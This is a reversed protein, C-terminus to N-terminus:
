YNVYVFGIFPEPFDPDNLVLVYYYTGVPVVENKQLIGLNPIADWLGEDNGGEYILNGERSYISLVFDPFVDVIYEIKFVDNLGDGNPSIGQPIVPPCREVLLQFSATTFCIENELRIYVSQPNSTNEFEGPNDIPNTNLLADEPTYFFQINGSSNSSIIDLFDEDLLNFVASELGTDCETLNPLPPIPPLNGFQVDLEFENNFENLEEVSGVGLGNDDAIALLTFEEPISEPLIIELSGSESGGIPINNLTQALAILQFDAYFAILTGSPLLATGESNYITYELTLDRQRCAYIENDITVTADPLPCLVSEVEFNTIIFCDANFVRIWITQPNETNLFNGPDEIANLEQLADEETLYYNISNSPDIQNTADTLDFYEIGFVDCVELNNVLGEVNPIVQIHVQLDAENNNENLENVASINDVYARLQFDAAVSEPVTVTISGSEFGDIPLITTTQASGLLTNDAYFGISVGAELSATSNINYVTYELYLERDGCETSGIFDDITISADPLETNLVTIVNNIIVLDQGSTLQVLASEDGAQINNEITYFDLDMNYFESSGTFSNTGNFANEEPNLPPNSIINGNVRLTENVALSLDGEWATFGIKAGQNDLVNLNNLEINLTNNLQSVAEFGDFVNVQNLTLDNDEYIVTIAWGAFNTTNGPTSCYIDPSIDPTLDTLTYSGNGTSSVLSTVDAFGGFYYHNSDLQYNFNRESNITTGNLTVSFDGEGSGAWYLFAAILSQDPELEFLANTETLFDCQGDVGTNESLNLTNGFALYDYRGNFQQYLSIEQGWIFFPFIFFTLFFSLQVFKM